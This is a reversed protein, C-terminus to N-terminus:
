YCGSLAVNLRVKYNSNAEDVNYTRTATLEQDPFSIHPCNQISYWAKAEALVTSKNGRAFDKELTSKLEVAKEIAGDATAAYVVKGFPLLLYTAGSGSNAFAINSIFFISLATLLTKM